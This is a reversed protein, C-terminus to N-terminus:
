TEVLTKFAEESTCKTSFPYVLNPCTVVLVSNYGGSKKMPVVDVYLLSNRSYPIPLSSYLGQDGSDSQRSGKCPCADAVCQMMEVSEKHGMTIDFWKNFEQLSEAGGVHGRM